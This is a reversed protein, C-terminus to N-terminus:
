PSEPPSEPAPYHGQSIHYDEMRRVIRFIHSQQHSMDLMRQDMAQMYTRMQNNDTRLEHVTMRIATMDGRIVTM